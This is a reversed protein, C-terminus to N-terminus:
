VVDRPSTAHPSSLRDNISTEYAPPMQSQRQEARLREVEQALGQALNVLRNRESGADTGRPSSTVTSLSRTLTEPSRFSVTAPVSALSRTSLSREATEGDDEAGPVKHEHRWDSRSVRRRRFLYIGGLCALLVIGGATGGVVAALNAKKTSSASAQDMSSPTSSTKPYSVSSTGSTAPMEATYSGTTGDDTTYVAYDFFMQPLGPDGITLGLVHTSPSLGERSYALQNYQTHPGKGYAQLMPQEGDLSYSIGFTNESFDNMAPIIHYVYIATGDFTLNLQTGGGLVSTTQNITMGTWTQNYALSPDVGQLCTTTLIPNQGPNQCNSSQFEWGVVWNPKGGTKEDGYTDDITVNVSTAASLHALLLLRLFLGLYFWRVGAVYAM